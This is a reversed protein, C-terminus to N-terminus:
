QAFDEPPKTEGSLRRRATSQAVGFRAAPRRAIWGIACLLPPAVHEYEINM